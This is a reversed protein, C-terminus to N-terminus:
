GSHGVVIITDGINLGGLASATAIPTAQNCRSKSALTDQRVVYV